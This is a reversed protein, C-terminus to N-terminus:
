REKLEMQKVIDNLKNIFSKLNDLEFYKNYSHQFDICCYMQSKTIGVNYDIAIDEGESDTFHETKLM